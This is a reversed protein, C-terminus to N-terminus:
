ELIGEELNLQMAAVPCIRTCMGCASCKDIDFQIQRTQLNLTLAGTPCLATCIGCHTCSEEDRAIKQAVPMITIGQEKLFRIGNFYDDEKGTVEITMFGENRPTIQARLINFDLNFRAPLHTVLPKGSIAPPFTLYIIKRVSKDHKKSM